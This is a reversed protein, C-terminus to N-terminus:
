NNINKFFERNSNRHVHLFAVFYVTSASRASLLFVMAAFNNDIFSLFGAATPFPLLLVFINSCSNSSRRFLILPFFQPFYVHLVVLGRFCEEARMSGPIVQLICTTTDCSNILRVTAIPLLFFAVIDTINRQNIKTSKVSPACLM